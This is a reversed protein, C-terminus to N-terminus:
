KETKGNSSTEQAEHHLRRNVRSVKIYDQRDEEDSKLNFEGIGPAKCPAHTDKQNIIRVLSPLVELQMSLQALTTLLFTKRLMVDGICISVTLCDVEHLFLEHTVKHLYM